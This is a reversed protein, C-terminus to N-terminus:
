QSRDKLIFCLGAPFGAPLKQSFRSASVAKWTRLYVHRICGQVPFEPRCTKFIHLSLIRDDGSQFILYLCLAYSMSIQETTCSSRTLGSNRFNKCSTDVAFMRYFSAGATVARGTASDCGTGAHIHDLDISSGVITHVIDTLDHVFYGIGRRFSFILNIDNVLNM